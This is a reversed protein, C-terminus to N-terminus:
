TDPWSTQSSKEMSPLQIEELFYDWDLQIVDTNLKAPSQSVIPFHINGRARSIFTAGFLDLEDYAVASLLYVRRRQKIWDQWARAFAEQYAPSHSAPSLLVTDIGELIQLPIALAALPTNRRVVVISHAPLLQALQSTQRVLGAFNGQTPASNLHSNIGTFGLLLALSGLLTGGSTIMQAINRKRQLPRHFLTELVIPLFATAGLVLYPMAAPLLRRMAYPQLPNNRLDYSLIVLSILGSWFFAKQWTRRLRVALLAVGIVAMALGFPQWYWGLRFFTEERYSRLLGDIPWFFFYDAGTESPNPRIWYAYAALALMVVALGFRSYREFPLHKHTRAGARCRIQWWKWGVALLGGGALFWLMRLQGLASLNGHFNPWSFQRWALLASLGIAASAISFSIKFRVGPTFLVGLVTLSGVLLTDFKLYLGAALAAGALLGASTDGLVRRYAWALMALLWFCLASPEAFFSRGVWLNLPQLLAVLFACLGIVGRGPLWRNALLGLLAAALIMLARNAISLGAWGGVEYAAALLLPFGPPFQPDITAKSSIPDAPDCPADPPQPDLVFGTDYNWFRQAQGKRRQAEAPEYGLMWPQLASPTERLIPVEIRYSGTRALHIASSLYIDEDAAGFIPEGPPAYTFPIAGGAAIMATVLIFAAPFFRRCNFIRTIARSAEACLMLIVVVSLFVFCGAVMWLACTRLGFFQFAGCQIALCSGVFVAISLLSSWGFM